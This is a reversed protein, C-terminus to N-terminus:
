TRYEHLIHIAEPATIATASHVGTWALPLAHAHFPGHGGRNSETFHHEVVWRAASDINFDYARGSAL